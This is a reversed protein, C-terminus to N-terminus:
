RRRFIETYGDKHKIEIQSILNGVRSFRISDFEESHFLDMEVISLLCKSFTDYIMYLKGKDMYIIV